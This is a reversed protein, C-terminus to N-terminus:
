IRSEVGWRRPGKSFPRERPAVSEAELDGKFRDRGSSETTVSCSGCESLLGALTMDLSVGMCMCLKATHAHHTRMVCVRSVSSTGSSTPLPLIWVWKWAASICASSTASSTLPLPESSIM